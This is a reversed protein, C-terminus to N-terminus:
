ERVVFEWELPESGTQFFMCRREDILDVFLRYRGPRSLSPLPITVNVATGPYLKTEFLGARGGAVEAGKDDWVMYCLHIGASLSSRMRWPLASINYARIRAVFPEGKRAGIPKELWELRGFSEGATYEHTAWLRFREPCHEQNQGQLWSVYLGFFRDLEAPRGLALHGYRLGLQFRAQALSFDTQLLLLVASALGTRDAGRRCHLLLPYESRDLVEILRRIAQPSPLRGASM